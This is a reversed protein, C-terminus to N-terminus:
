SATEVPSSILRANLSRWFMRANTWDAKSRDISIARTM